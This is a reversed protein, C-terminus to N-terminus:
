QAPITYILYDSDDTWDTSPITCECPEFLVKGDYTFLGENGDKDSIAIVGKYPFWTYGADYGADHDYSDYLPYDLVYGSSNILMQCSNGDLYYDYIYTITTSGDLPYPYSLRDPDTNDVSFYHDYEPEIIVTGDRRMFGACFSVDGPDSELHFVWCDISEVFDQFRYDPFSLLVTGTADIIYSVDDKLVAFEGNPSCIIDQYEAPLVPNGHIDMVGRNGNEDKYIVYDYQVFAGESNELIRPEDSSLDAIELGNIQAYNDGPTYFISEYIPDFIYEGNELDILGWLANDPSFEVKSDSYIKTLKREPYYKYVYYQNGTFDCMLDRNEIDSGSVFYYGSDTVAYIESDQYEVVVEGDRDIIGYEGESSQVIFYSECYMEILQYQPKVIIIGTQDIVGQMGDAQMVCRGYAFESAVGEFQPDIVIEGTVDIFGYLGDVKVAALGDSFDQADEYQAPIVEEGSENIYGWLGTEYDQFRALNEETFLGLYNYQPEIVVDGTVSLMGYLDDGPTYRVTPTPISKPTATPTPVESETTSSETEDATETKVTNKSCSCTLLTLLCLLLITIIRKM